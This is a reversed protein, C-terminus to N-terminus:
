PTKQFIFDFMGKKERIENFMKVESGYIQSGDVFATMTSMQERVDIYARNTCAAFSRGLPSCEPGFNNFLLPFCPHQWANFTGCRFHYNTIQLILEGIKSM